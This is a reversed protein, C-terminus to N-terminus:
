DFDKKKRLSKVARKAGTVLKDVIRNEKKVEDKSEEVNNYVTKSPYEFPREDEKRLFMTQFKLETDFSLIKRIFELDMGMHTLLISIITAKLISISSIIQQIELVGSDDLKYHSYFNRTDALDRFYKQVLDAELKREYKERNRTNKEVDVANASIINLFQKDLEQLRYSLQTKGLYGAAIWGAIEEIHKSNCKWDPDASKMTEEFLAKGEDNFLLKKIEKTNNKLDENIKKKKEEDGCIRTHYGDLFRMYELFIEEAFIDNKKNVSFYIRRLLSYTEDNYFNNWAEYYSELMNEVIYYYTRPREFVSDVTRLNYSFDKNIYLWSKADQGVVSLRIDEVGSIHGILLGFFESVCDIDKEVQLINQPMDYHISIRPNNKITIATDDQNMITSNFTKSEFYLKIYPSSAKIVIPEMEVEVAGVNGDETQAYNVSKRGIWKLLEPIEFSVEEIGSIDNGKSFGFNQMLVYAVRHSSAYELSRRSSSAARGNVFVKYAIKGDSGTYASPWIDVPFRAYFEIIDDDMILEGAESTDNEGERRWIGIHREM